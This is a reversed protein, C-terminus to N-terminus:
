PSVVKSFEYVEQGRDLRFSKGPADLELGIGALPPDLLVFVRKGPPENMYGLRTDYVGTDLWLEGKRRVFEFRGLEANEHVGLLPALVAEDVPLFKKRLEALAKTQAEKSIPDVFLLEDEADFQRPVRRTRGKARRAHVVRTRRLIHLGAHGVPRQANVNAISEWIWAYISPGEVSGSRGIRTGAFGVIKGFRGEIKDPRSVLGWLGRGLGIHDAEQEQKPASSSVVM